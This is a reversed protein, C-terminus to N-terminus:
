KSLWGEWIIVDGANAEAWFQFFHITTSAGDVINAYEVGQLGALVNM